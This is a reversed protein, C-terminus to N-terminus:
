LEHKRTSVHDVAGSEYEIYLYPELPQSAVHLQPGVIAVIPEVAATPLKKM